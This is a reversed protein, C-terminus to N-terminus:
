NGQPIRIAQGPRIRSQRSLGNARLLDDLSVGFSQSIGWLTEGSRVIHVRRPAGEAPRRAASSTAASRASGTTASRTSRTAASRTGRSLSNPIILRQGVRLSRANVGRNASRLDEVSVGYRRGIGSLTEGRSVFHLLLTVRESAPLTLLRASVSDATGAPVRVWVRAGPPTVGRLFMPNLEEMRDRTTGALRALVDMGVSFDVTVSDWTLPEWPTIGGFGYREPEKALLAAAILKPVYDRTERRLFTTGDSLAFYVDNGDLAGFDYRQLGRQIKGPGTNYAAAALWLSGFRGNLETLFRIAADTSIYPDRREDRWADVTLGYRRATAPMFQWMGTAGVRSRALPSMGSEILALYVLDQPLGAALLRTRIMSDYRGLRTLYVQFHRRARTSFFGMWYQVREHQAHTSVDIDWTASASAGAPRGFLRAAENEIAEAPVAVLARATTDAALTRLSDLFGDDQISDARASDARAPPAPV